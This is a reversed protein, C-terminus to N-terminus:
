QGTWVAYLGPNTLHNFGYLKLEQKVAPELEGTRPVVDFVFYHVNKSRGMYEGGMNMVNDMLRSFLRKQLASHHRDSFYMDAIPIYGRVEVGPINALSLWSRRGGATQDGGAVLTLKLISLIVGYMSKAIGGGRYAPDVVVSEVQWANKIPFNKFRGLQLQGVVDGDGSGYDLIYIVRTESGQEVMYKLGSGGPLPKSKDGLRPHYPTMQSKGPNFQGRPIKVIEIIERAKMLSRGDNGSVAAGTVLKQEHVPIRV